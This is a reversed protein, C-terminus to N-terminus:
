RSLTLGMVTMLLICNELRQRVFCRSLVLDHYKRDNGGAQTTVERLFHTDPCGGGSSTRENPWEKSKDTTPATLLQGNRNKNSKLM